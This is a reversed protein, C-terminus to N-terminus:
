FSIPFEFIGVFHLVIKSVGGWGVGVREGEGVGGGVGRPNTDLVSSCVGGHRLRLQLRLRRGLGLCCRLGVGLPLM